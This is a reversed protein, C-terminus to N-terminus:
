TICIVVATQTPKHYIALITTQSALFLNLRIILIVLCNLFLNRIFLVLLLITKQRGRNGSYWVYKRRQNEKLIKSASLSM